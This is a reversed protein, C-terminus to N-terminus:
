VVQMKALWGSGGLVNNGFEDPTTLQLASLLHLLNYKAIFGHDGVSPVTYNYTAHHTCYTCNHHLGHKMSPLENVSMFEGDDKKDQGDPSRHAM